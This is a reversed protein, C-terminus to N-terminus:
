RGQRGFRMFVSARHTGYTGTMEFPFIFAYDIGLDFSRTWANDYSFGCTVQNRNAGIRMGFTHNLFWHEWGIHFNLYGNRYSVDVAIAPEEIVYSNLILLSGPWYCIGVQYEGPIRDSNYLGINPEGLNRAVAGFTFGGEKPVVQGALLGVDFAIASSARGNSFVQDDLTREDLTFQAQLYKANMGIKVPSMRLVSGFDVAIGLSGTQEEYLSVGRMRFWYAGIGLYKGAPAALSAFNESIDVSDLGTLLQTYFSELEVRSAGALGAPNCAWASAGQSVAVCANGMGLARISLGNNLFAAHASTCFALVLVISFVLLRIPNIGKNRM